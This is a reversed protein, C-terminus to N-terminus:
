TLHANMVFFGITLNPLNTKLAGNKKRKQKQAVTLVDRVAIRSRIACEKARRRIKDTSVNFQKGFEKFCAFRNRKVANIIDRNTAKGQIFSGEKRPQFAGKVAKRSIYFHKAIQAQTWGEDYKFYIM